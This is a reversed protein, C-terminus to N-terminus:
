CFIDTPMDVCLPGRAPSNPVDCSHYSEGLGAVGKLRGEELRRITEKSLLLKKVRKNM